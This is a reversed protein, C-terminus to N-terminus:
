TNPTVRLVVGFWSVAEVFMNFVFVCLILPAVYESIHCERMVFTVAIM